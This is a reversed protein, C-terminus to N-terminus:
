EGQLKKKIAIILKERIKDIYTQLNTDDLGMVNVSYRAFLNTDGNVGHKVPEATFYIEDPRYTLAFSNYFEGMNYLQIPIDQKGYVKQSVKSYHPLIVGDSLEGKQLQMKNLQLMMDKIESEDTLKNILFHIDITKTRNILNTLVTPMELSM